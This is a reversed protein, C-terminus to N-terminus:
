CIRKRVKFSACSFNPDVAKQAFKIFDEKPQARLYEVFAQWIKNHNLAKCGCELSHGGIHNKLYQCESECKPCEIDIRMIGKTDLLLQEVQELTLNAVDIGECYSDIDEPTLPRNEPLM